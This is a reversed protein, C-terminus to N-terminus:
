ENDKLLDVHVVPCENCWSDKGYIRTKSKLVVLTGDSLRYTKIRYGARKLAAIRHRSEAPTLEPVRM